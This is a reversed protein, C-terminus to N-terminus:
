PQQPEPGREAGDCRAAGHTLEALRRELAAAQEEPVTLFVRVGEPEFAPDRRQVGPLADLERLVADVFAFPARVLLAVTSAVDREGATQVARAVAGGYARALGGAGLKHGGFYRVVVAAVRDLDRKLFVELMPRGATGGPEGDDSFRQEGGVRYAWCHHSADPHAARQAALLALAEAADAVPAVTVLFRSGM